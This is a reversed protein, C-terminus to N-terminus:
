AHSWQQVGHDPQRTDDDLDPAAAVDAVKMRRADVTSEFTFARDTVPPTLNWTMLSTYQPQEPDHSTTIVLKHPLPSDGQEIWIQWDLDTERFAFHECPIDGVVEAGVAAAAILRDSTRHDVGRAFLDAAPVELGYRSELREELAELTSPAPVSAYYNKGRAWLTFTTGDYFFCRQQQDSTLAARLRNPRQVLMDVHADVQRRRGDDLSQDRTTDSSVHFAALTRIYAGMRDLAAVAKPDVMAPLTAQVAAAAPNTPVQGRPTRPKGDIQSTDVPPYGRALATASVMAVTRLIDSM